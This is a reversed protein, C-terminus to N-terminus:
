SRSRIRFWPRRRAQKRGLHVKLEDEIAAVVAAIRLSLPNTKSTASGHITERMSKAFSADAAFNAGGAGADEIAAEMAIYLEYACSGLEHAKGRIDDGWFAEAELAAVEFEERATRVPKWRNNYVHALGAAKESSSPRGNDFYGEPFEDGTILPSRASHIEDRLKYSAKALARAVEFRAKGGLEQKWKNIGTVAVWATVAASVALVVDKAATIVTPADM